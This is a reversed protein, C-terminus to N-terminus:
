RVVLLTVIDLTKTLRGRMWGKAGALAERYVRLGVPKGIAEAVTEAKAAQSGYGCYEQRLCLGMMADADQLERAAAEIPRLHEPTANLGNDRAGSRRTETCPIPDCYSMSVTKVGCEALDRAMYSRRESGSRAVLQQVARARTGPAFQRGRQLAHDDKPERPTTPYKSLAGWQCLLDDLQDTNM